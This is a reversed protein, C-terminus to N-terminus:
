FGAFKNNLFGTKIFLVTLCDLFLFKSLYQEGKEGLFLFFLKGCNPIDMWLYAEWYYSKGRGGTWFSYVADPKQLDLSQTVITFFGFASMNWYYIFHLFIFSLLKLLFIVMNFDVVDVLEASVLRIELCSIGLKKFCFYYYFPNLM